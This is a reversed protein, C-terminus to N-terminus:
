HLTKTMSWQRYYKEMVSRVIEPYDLADMQLMGERFFEPADEPLNAILVRFAAEMVAPNHTRTAVIGRNLNLVRWPRNPNSNELDHQLTPSVAAIIEGMAACLDELVMADSTTNALYAVGDVVPELNRLEAGHRALWLALPYAASQLQHHSQELGLKQAWYIMDNLLSLGYDGLESIDLNDGGQWASDQQRAAGHLDTDMRKIVDMFQQMASALLTPSAAADDDVMGSDEFAEVVEEIADECAECLSGIDLSIWNM